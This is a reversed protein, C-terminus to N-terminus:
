VGHFSGDPNHGDGDHGSTNYDGLTGALRLGCGCRCLAGRLARGRQRRGFCGAWLHVRGLLNLGTFLPECGVTTKAVSAVSGSALGARIEGAGRQNGAVGAAVLDARQNAGPAGGFPHRGKIQTIRVQNGDGSKNM